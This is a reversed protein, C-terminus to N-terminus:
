RSLHRKSAKNGKRIIYIGNEPNNVKVGNMNYIETPVPNDNSIDTIGSLSPEVASTPLSEGQGYLACVTYSPKGPLIGQDIFSTETVPNENIKVGDRYINYGSLNFRSEDNITPKEWIISVDNGTSKASLNAPVPFATGEAISIDDIRIAMGFKSCYHFGINYKGDESVAFDSSQEKYTSSRFTTPEILTTPLNEAKNGTGIAVEYTEDYYGYEGKVKFKLNYLYGKKFKISPTILWSDGGGKACGAVYSWTMNQSIPNKINDISFQNFADKSDFSENYPPEYTGLTLIQSKTSEGTKNDFIPAVTYYYQIVGSQPEPLIDSFSTEAIEGFAKEDPYRTIRYKIDSLNIYGGNVGADPVADWTLLAKMTTPDFEIKLGTIAKPIDNGAFISSYAVPSRGAVNSLFVTLDLNGNDTVTINENFEASPKIKGTKFSKSNVLIEYGLEEDALDTDSYTKSPATFKVNFDYASDKVRSASLDSVAAPANDAAETVPIYLGTLQGNDPIDCIKSSSATQPDIAYLASTSNDNQSIYYILGREDDYLASTTYYSEIKTDGVLNKEGTYKDFTYLYGFSDIGYIVGEKSIAVGMLPRELPEGIRSVSFNDLNFSGLIPKKNEDKTMFCGFARGLTPDYAMDYACDSGEYFSERKIQKWTNADFIYHYRYISGYMEKESNCYYKGGAYFGGASAEIGSEVLEMTPNSSADVSLKYLGLTTDDKGSFILSGYLTTPEIQNGAVATTAIAAVALTLNRLHKRM